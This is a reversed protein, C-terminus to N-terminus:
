VEKCVIRLIDIDDYEVFGVRPTSIEVLNGSVFAGTVSVRLGNALVDIVECMLAEEEGRMRPDRIQIVAKELTGDAFATWLSERSVVQVM